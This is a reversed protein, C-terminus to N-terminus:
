TLTLQFISRNTFDKLDGGILFDNCSIMIGQDLFCYGDEDAIVALAHLYRIIPESQNTNNDYGTTFSIYKSNYGLDSAAKSFWTASEHCDGGYQRIYKDVTSFNEYDYDATYNYTFIERFHDNLCYAAGEASMNACDSIDSVEGDPVLLSSNLPKYSLIFDCSGVMYYVTSGLIVVLGLMVLWSFVILGTALRNKWNKAM